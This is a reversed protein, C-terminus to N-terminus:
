GPLGDPFANCFRRAESYPFFDVVEGALVPTKDKLVKTVGDAGVLEIRLNGAKAITTSKEHSFFDGGKMHAVHTKSDKSWAGM